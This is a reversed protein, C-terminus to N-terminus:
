DQLPKQQSFLTKWHPKNQEYQTMLWDPPNNHDIGLILVYRDYKAFNYLAHIWNRNDFIYGKGFKHQVWGFPWIKICPPFEHLPIWLRLKQENKEKVDKHPHLWGGPGCVHIDCLDTFPLDDDLKELFQKMGSTVFKENTSFLTDTTEKITQASNHLLVMNDKAEYLMPLHSYRSHNDENFWSDFLGVSTIPTLEESVAKAALYIESLICPNPIDFDVIPVSKCESVDYESFDNNIYEWFFQNNM